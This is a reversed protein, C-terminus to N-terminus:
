QEPESYHLKVQTAAISPACVISVDADHARASTATWKGSGDISEDSVKFNVYGHITGRPQSPDLRWSEHELRSKWLEYVADVNDGVSFSVDVVHLRKGAASKITAQKASLIKVRGPYGPLYRYAPLEVPDSPLKAAGGGNATGLIIEWTKPKTELKGTAEKATTEATARAEHHEAQVPVSGAHDSFSDVINRFSTTFEEGTDSPYVLIALLHQKSAKSFPILTLCSHFGQAEVGPKRDGSYEGPELTVDGLIGGEQPQLSEKSDVYFSVEKKLKYEFHLTNGNKTVKAKPYFRQVSEQLRKYVEDSPIADAAGATAAIGISIPSVMASAAM